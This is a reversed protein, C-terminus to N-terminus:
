KKKSKKASRSKVLKDNAMEDEDLWTLNLPTDKGLGNTVFVEDIIVQPNTNKDILNARVTELERVINICSFDNDPILVGMKSARSILESDALAAFTNKNNPKTKGTLNKANILTVARTEMNRHQLHPNRQCFRLHTEPALPPTPIIEECDPHPLQVTYDMSVKLDSGMDGVVESIQLSHDSAVLHDVPDHKCIDSQSLLYEDGQHTAGTAMELALKEILLPSNAGGNDSESSSSDAPIHDEDTLSPLCCAKGGRYSSTKAKETRESPKDEEGPPTDNRKRKPTGNKPVAYHPVQVPEEERTINRVLVEEVEYHFRYFRGGLCGEASTPLKDVERCGLKIRVSSPRNLTSMDIDLTVGVLGGIYAVNKDCRKNPPIKSIKVWAVELLGESEVDESWPTIRVVVGLSKLPIYEVFLAKDVERQNPFRM